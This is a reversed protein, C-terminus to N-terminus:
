MGKNNVGELQQHNAISVEEQTTDCPLVNRKYAQGNM